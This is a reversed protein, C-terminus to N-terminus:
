EVPASKSKHMRRLARAAECPVWGLRAVAERVKKKTAETIHAALPHESMVLSVTTPSVDALAAVDVIRPPM